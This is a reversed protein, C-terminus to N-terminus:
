FSTAFSAVFRNNDVEDLSSPELFWQYEIKFVTRHIPRFNFGLTFDDCFSLRM